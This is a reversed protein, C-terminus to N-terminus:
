IQGASRKLEKDRGSSVEREGVGKRRASACRRFAILFPPSGSRSKAPLHNICANLSPFNPAQVNSPKPLPPSHTSETVSSSPTSPSVNDDSSVLDISTGIGITGDGIDGNDVVRGVGVRVGDSDIDWEIFLVM